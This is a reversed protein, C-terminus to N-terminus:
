VHREDEMQEVGREVTYWLDKSVSLGHALEEIARHRDERNGQTQWRQVAIYRGRQSEASRSQLLSRDANNDM